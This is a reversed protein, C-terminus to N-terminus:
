NPYYPGHEGTVANFFQTCGNVLHETCSQTLGHICKKCNYKVAAKNQQIASNFELPKTGAAIHKDKLALFQDAKEQTIRTGIARFQWGKKPFYCDTFEREPLLVRLQAASWGGRVSKGKDILEQTVIIMSQKEMTSEPMSQLPLVAWPSM